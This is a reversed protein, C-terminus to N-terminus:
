CRGGSATVRVYYVRAMQQIEDNPNRCVRPPNSPVDNFAVARDTFRNKASEAWPIGANSISKWGAGWNSPIFGKQGSYGQLTWGCSNGLACDSGLPTVTSPTGESPGDDGLAAGGAIAFSLVALTVAGAALAMHRRILL